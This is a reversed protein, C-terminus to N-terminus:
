KMKLVIRKDDRHKDGVYMKGEDTAVPTDVFCTGDVVFMRDDDDKVVAKFEKEIIKVLWYIKGPEIVLGNEAARFFNGVMVMIWAATFLVIIFNIITMLPTPIFFTVVASLSIIIVALTFSGSYKEIKRKM